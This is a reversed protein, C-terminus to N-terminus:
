QTLLSADPAIFPGDFWIHAQGTGAASEYASFMQGTSTCTRGGIAGVMLLYHAFFGEPSHTRYEPWGDIVAADAPVEVRTGAAVIKGDKVAVSGGRIAPGAATLITYINGARVVNGAVAGFAVIGGINAIGNTPTTGNFTTATM